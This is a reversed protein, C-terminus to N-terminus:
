HGFHGAPVMEQKGATRLTTLYQIKEGLAIRVITGPPVVTPEEGDIHALMSRYTSFKIVDTLTGVEKGQLLRLIAGTAATKNKPLRIERIKGSFQDVNTRFHMSMWPNTCATIESYPEETDLIEVKKSLAFSGLGVRLQKAGPIRDMPSVKNTRHAGDGTMGFGMYMFGEDVQRKFGSAQPQLMDLTRVLSRGTRLEVSGVLETPSLKKRGSHAKGFDSAYGGAIWGIGLNGDAYQRLAPDRMALGALRITGEGGAVFIGSVKPDIGAEVLTDLLVSAM